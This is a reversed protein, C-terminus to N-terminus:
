GRRKRPDHDAPKIITFMAEALNDSASLGATEMREKIWKVVEDKKADPNRRPQFFEAVTAALIKLYTTEYNEWPWGPKLNIPDQNLLRKDWPFDDPLSWGAPIFAVFESVKVMLVLSGFHRGAVFARDQFEQSEKDFFIVGPAEWSSVTKAKTPEINMSLAIAEWVLM